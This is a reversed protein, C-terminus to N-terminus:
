KFGLSISVNIVTDSGYNLFVTDYNKVIENLAEKLQQDSLGTEDKIKRPDVSTPLNKGSILQRITTIVTKANESM